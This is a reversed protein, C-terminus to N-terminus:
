YDLDPLKVQSTEAINLENSRLNKKHCSRNNGEIRYCFTANFFESYM